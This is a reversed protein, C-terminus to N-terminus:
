NLTGAVYVYMCESFHIFFIIFFLFYFRVRFEEHM